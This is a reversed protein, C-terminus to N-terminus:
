TIVYVSVLYIDFPMNQCTPFTNVYLYFLIKSSLISVLRETPTKYIM